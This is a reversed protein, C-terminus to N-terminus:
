PPSGVGDVQQRNRMVGKGKAIVLEDGTLGKRIEV